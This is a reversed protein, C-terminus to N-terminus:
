GEAVPRDDAMGIKLMRQDILQDVVMIAKPVRRDVVSLLFPKLPWDVPGFGMSRIIRGISPRQGLSDKTKLM